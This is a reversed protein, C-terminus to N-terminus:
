VGDMRGGWCKEERECVLGDCPLSGSMEEERRECVSERFFKENSQNMMEDGDWAGGALKCIKLCWLAARCVGYTM